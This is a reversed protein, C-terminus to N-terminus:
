SRRAFAQSAFRSWRTAVLEDDLMKTLLGVWCIDSECPLLSQQYIPAMDSMSGSFPDKIVLPDHPVADVPVGSRLQDTLVIRPSSRTRWRWGANM